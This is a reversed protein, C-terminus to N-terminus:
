RIDPSPIVTASAGSGCRRRWKRRAKPPKSCPWTTNRPPLKTASAAPRCSASRERPPTGRSRRASLRDAANRLRSGPTSFSRVARQPPQAVTVAHDGAAVVAVDGVLVAGDLRRVAMELAGHLVRRRQAARAVDVRDGTTAGEDVRQGAAAVGAVALADVGLAGHQSRQRDPPGFVALLLHDRDRDRRRAPEHQAVHEVGHGRAEDAVPQPRPEVVVPDLDKEAARM